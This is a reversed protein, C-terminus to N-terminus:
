LCQNFYKQWEGMNECIFPETCLQLLDPMAMLWAVRHPWNKDSLKQLIVSILQDIKQNRVKHKRWLSIISPVVIIGEQIRSRETSNVYDKEVAVVADGVRSLIRQCYGRITKRFGVRFDKNRKWQLEHLSQELDVYLMAPERVSGAFTHVFLIGRDTLESDPPIGLLQGCVKPYEGALIEKKHYIIGTIAHISKIFLEVVDFQQNHLIFLRDYFRYLLMGTQISYISFLKDVASMYMEILINSAFLGFPIGIDTKCMETLKSVISRCLSDTMHKTASVGFTIRANYDAKLSCLAKLLRSHPISSYLQDLKVYCMNRYQNAPGLQLSRHFWMYNCNPHIIYSSGTEPDYVHALTKLKHPLPQSDIAFRMGFAYVGPTNDDNYVNGYVLRALGIVDQTMSEAEYKGIVTMHVKDPEEPTYVPIIETPINYAPMQSIAHVLAKNEAFFKRVSM